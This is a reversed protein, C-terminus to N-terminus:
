DTGAVPRREQASVYVRWELKIEAAGPGLELVRVKAYNREMTRVAIVAGPRIAPAEGWAALSTPSYRLRRLIDENLQDFTRGEVLTLLAGNRGELYREGRTAYRWWLDVGRDGGITGTELDLTYSPRISAITTIGDDKLGLADALRSYLKWAQSVDPARVAPLPERGLWWAAFAIAAVLPAALLALRAWPNRQSM